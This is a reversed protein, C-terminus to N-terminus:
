LFLHRYLNIQAIIYLEKRRCQNIRLLVFNRTCFFLCVSFTSSSIDEVNEQENMHSEPLCHCQDLSSVCKHSRFGSNTMARRIEIQSTLLSEWKFPLCPIKQAIEKAPWWCFLSCFRYMSWSCFLTSCTCFGAAKCIRFDLSVHLWIDSRYEYKGHLKTSSKWDSRGIWCLYNLNFFYLAM